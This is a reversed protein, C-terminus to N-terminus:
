YYTNPKQPLLKKNYIVKITIYTFPEFNSDCNALFKNDKFMKHISIQDIWIDFFDISFNNQLSLVTPYLITLLNDREKQQSKLSYFLDDIAHYLYKKQFSTLIIREVTSLSRECKLFFTKSRLSRPNEYSWNWRTFVQRGESPLKINIQDFKKKEEGSYKIPKGSGYLIKLFEVRKKVPDFEDNCKCLEYKFKLFEARKKIPDSKDNSKDNSKYLIM